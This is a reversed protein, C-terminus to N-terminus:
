RREVRVKRGRAGGRRGAAAQQQKEELCLRAGPSLIRKVLKNMEKLHSNAPKAQGSLGGQGM